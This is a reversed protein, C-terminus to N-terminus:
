NPRSEDSDAKSRSEIAFVLPHIDGARTMREQEALDQLFVKESVQYYRWASFTPEPGAEISRKAKSIKALALDQQGVISCAIALCQHYNPGRGTEDLGDLVKAFLEPSPTGSAGWQAMAYNFRDAVNLERADHVPRFVEVAEAFQGLGILVLMLASRLSENIQSPVVPHALSERLIREAIALEHRGHNLSSALVGRDKLDLAALAHCNALKEFASSGRLIQATASLEVYGVQAFDLVRAADQVAEAQNGQHQHLEARTLFLEATAFGTEAAENLIDLAEKPQRQRKRVQALKTLIDGSGRHTKRIKDLNTEVSAGLEHLASFPVNLLALFALAGEPDEVNDRVLEHVLERYETALRSKPREVAFVVQKLLALSDYRHITATLKSYRLTERFRRVSGSLIEDEDDLDPVNSMVFHMRIKKDRPGEAERRIQRVVRDLGRLNQEDPHFLVVVADPLQRTCIETVDTHGTRSDILVYDPALVKKWDEKLNEFLLYGDRNAYLDQWDIAALEASYSDNQRGSPMVWLQGGKQGVGTCEYYHGEFTPARNTRLYKTVYEVLGPVATKPRPLNYTDVGPAELDFDVVLVKRGRLALEVAANLLAMTRGVGGKFSYFTIIHV